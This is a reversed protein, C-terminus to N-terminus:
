KVEIKPQMSAIWSSRGSANDESPDSCYGDGMGRDFPGGNVWVDVAESVMEAVDKQTVKCEPFEDQWEKIKDCDIYVRVAVDFFKEEKVKTAM